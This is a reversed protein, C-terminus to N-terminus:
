IAKAALLSKQVDDVLKRAARAPISIAARKSKVSWGSISALTLVAQAKTPTPANGDSSGDTDAGTAGGGDGVVTAGGGEGTTSGAGGGTVMAGGGEGTTSGAGGTVM